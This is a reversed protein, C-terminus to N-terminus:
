NVTSLRYKLGLVWVQSTCKCSIPCYRHGVGVVVEYTFQGRRYFVEIGCGAFPDLMGLLPGGLLTGGPLERGCRVGM